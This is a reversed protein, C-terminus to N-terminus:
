VSLFESGGSLSIRMLYMYVHSTDEWTIVSDVYITFRKYVSLSVCLGTSLSSELDLM